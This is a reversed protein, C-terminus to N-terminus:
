DVGDEVISRACNGCADYPVLHYTKHPCQLLNGLNVMGSKSTQDHGSTGGM